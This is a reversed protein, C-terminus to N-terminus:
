PTIAICGQTESECESGVRAVGEDTACFTNGAKLTASICYNSADAFCAVTSDQDTLDDQLVGLGQTDGLSAPGECVTAYSGTTTKILEAITRAQTIASTVRADSAAERVGSFSVLVISALIGIIAIVVLLEILTFGKSKKTFFEM